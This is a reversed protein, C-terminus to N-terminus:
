GHRQAAKLHNNKKREVRLNKIFQRHGKRTYTRTRKMRKKKGLAKIFKFFFEIASFKMKGKLRNNEEVQEKKLNYRYADFNENHRRARAVM